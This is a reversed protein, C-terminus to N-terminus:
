KVRTGGAGLKARLDDSSLAGGDGEGACEEAGFPM